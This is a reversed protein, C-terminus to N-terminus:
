ETEGQANQQQMLTVAKTSDLIINEGESLGALVEVENKAHRHGLRIQRFSIVGKKNKIYVATVEGRYAVARKPILLAREEGITLGVRTSMGPYVKHDGQPLHLRATFSHSLPDAYPSISMSSVEVPMDLNEGLYVRAKNYKRVKHIISQPLQVSARLTELSLGTMLKQGINALEGVEVHRKVVIGSYPAHVITNELSENAQELVARASKLRADAKDLASKAVLRKAYIEKIRKYDSQAEEFQAKASKAAARQKRDRFRVLVDGKKVYDDIDVLIELIRGRVQSAVTAQRVAEIQASLYRVLPITRSEVPATEITAAASVTAVSFLIAYAMITYFKLKLM